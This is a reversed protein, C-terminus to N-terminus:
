LLSKIHRLFADFDEIIGLHAYLVTGDPRVLLTFPTQPEGLVKHVSFDPDELIPYRAKYEKRVHAVEFPTAGGAIALLKVKSKLTEDRNIRKFLRRIDPAQEHCIPCYVGMFELMIIDAEVDALTFPGDKDLGLYARDTKQQPAVIPFQPLVDGKATLAHSQVATCLLALLVLGTTLTLRPTTKM